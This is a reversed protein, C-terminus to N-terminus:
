ALLQRPLSRYDDAFAIVNNYSGFEEHGHMTTLVVCRMGAAAACEVGKPADEFVLCDNPEVGLQEACKLFTEPHPKSHTVDDASVIADFYERIKCGNLVFDINARIAASGIAMRINNAQAKALFDDLGNILKLQPRFGERYAAEKQSGLREKEMENFRGPFIRELMEDNKGYCEARTQDYTLNAGLDNLIERWATIHYDMDAVMTGNLDFVFAKAGFMTDQTKM